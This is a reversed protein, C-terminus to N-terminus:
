QWQLSFLTADTDRRFVFILDLDDHDSDDVFVKVPKGDEDLTEEVDPYDEYFYWDEAGMWTNKKFRRSGPGVRSRCWREIDELQDHHKRDLKIEIM